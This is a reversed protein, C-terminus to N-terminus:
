QTLQELKKCEATHENSIEVLANLVAIRSMPYQQVRNKINRIVGSSLTLDNPLKLKVLDVYMDPLNDEIIEYAKDIHLRMKMKNNKEIIKTM